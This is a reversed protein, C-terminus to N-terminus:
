KQWIRCWFRKFLRKYWPMNYLLELSKEFLEKTQSAELIQQAIDEQTKVQDMRHGMLEVHNQIAMAVFEWETIADEMPRAQHGSAGDMVIGYERYADISKKLSKNGSVLHEILVSSLVDPKSAILDHIAKEIAEMNNILLRKLLIFVLSESVM